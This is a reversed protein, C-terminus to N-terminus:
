RGGGAARQARMQALFSTVAPDNVLALYAQLSQEARVFDGTRAAAIGLNRLILPDRNGADLAAQYAQQASAFDGRDAYLNGLDAYARDWGPKLRLATNYAELAADYERRAHRGEGAALWFEPDRPRIRIMGEGARWAWETPYWDPWREGFVPDIRYLVSHGEEGAMVPVLGEPAFEPVLLFAFSPRLMAEPWSIYLYNAKQEKAYAALADLSDLPVFPVADARAYYSLHPKRAILKPAGQGKWDDQLAQGIRPLDAPVQTALFQTDKVTASGQVWLTWALALAPLLGALFSGVGPIARLIGPLALRGALAGAGLVAAVPVLPLHYRSSYFAPVLSAYVLVGLALAPGMGSLRQVIWLLAGLAALATLPLLWLEKAVQSAHERTNAVLRAVVAQPDREIVSRLTPFENELRLQYEDWTVGRSRAYVEYALNHYFRLTPPAGKSITFAWWPGFIAVVGIGFAILARVRRGHWQSSDGPWLAAFLGLPVLVIGTYRTLTALGALAGGLVLRSVKREVPFLCVFTGSLLALYLADTSATYAYRVVTPNTALLLAAIWGAARGARAEIWGSWLAITLTMSALSLFQAIRFLDFGSKGLAGLVLEYVPGVVGYRVPDPGGAWLARVGPAYGGYFDTEVFYDGVPHMWWLVPALAAAFLLLILLRAGAPVRDAWTTDPVTRREVRPTGRVTRTPQAM